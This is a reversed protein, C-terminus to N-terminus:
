IALLFDVLKKVAIARHSIANKEEETMEAFTRDYGEPIFIPDYGFGKSGRREEIIEGNIRGEFFYEEGGLILSIVTIFAAKRNSKGTLNKLILDMNQEMDRSGSYRASYVGPENNLAEVELGSYDAFCNIHYHEVIYHSKQSANEHFTAGTEPIDEECNIDSLSRITIKDALIARVEQLKNKNNTAFVLEIM